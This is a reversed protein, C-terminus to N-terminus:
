KIKNTTQSRVNSRTPQNDKEKESSRLSFFEEAMLTAGVYISSDRGDHRCIQLILTLLVVYSRSFRIPSIHDDQSTKCLCLPWFIIPRSRADVRSVNRKVEGQTSQESEKFQPLSLHSHTQQPKCLLEWAKQLRCISCISLILRSPTEPPKM